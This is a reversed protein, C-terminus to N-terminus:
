LLNTVRDALGKEGLVVNMNGSAAIRELVELERMRMLTPNDNLLKATNSQSRMAATEERRAILNAEAAKRAETVKNMLDKMEGPLIVDRIGVARIELGLANARERILQEVEEAVKEKDGLLDDLVRSGLVARLALQTERYLSQQPDVSSSVTKKADTVRYTVMANLRLTVKDATMIEQGSIDVNAERLDKQVVKADSTSKWFAYRGPKLTEVFRGEIFLVGECDRDVQCIDLLEAAGPSKAILHMQPHEFRVDNVDFIEVRVEHFGNWYAYHGPKLIRTFRGDVWVLARQNDKLDIVTALGDLVGSRVIIDLKSHCLWVDRQSVITVEHRLMPDFLWHDGPPFLDVFEGDRFHLGYEYKRIKIKRFM